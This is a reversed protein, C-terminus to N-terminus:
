NFCTIRHKKLTMKLVLFSCKTVKIECQISNYVIILLVIIHLLFFARITYGPKVAKVKAGVINACHKAGVINLVSQKGSRRGVDEIM